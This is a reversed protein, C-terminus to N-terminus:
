SSVVSPVVAEKDCMFEWPTHTHTCECAHTDRGVRKGLENM